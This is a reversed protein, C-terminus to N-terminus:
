QKKKLLALIEEVPKMSYERLMEGSAGVYDFVFAAVLPKNQTKAFLDSAMNELGSLHVYCGDSAIKKRPVKDVNECALAELAPGCPFKLGLMVGVRDIVQGAHM